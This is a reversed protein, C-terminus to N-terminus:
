SLPDAPNGAVLIEEGELQVYKLATVPLLSSKQVLSMTWTPSGAGRQVTDKKTM